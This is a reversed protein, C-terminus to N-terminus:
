LGFGGRLGPCRHSKFATNRRSEHDVGSPQPQFRGKQRLDDVLLALLEIDPLDNRSRVGHFLAHRSIGLVHICRGIIEADGVVGSDHFPHARGAAAPSIHDNALCVSLREALEAAFSIKKLIAPNDDHVLYGFRVSKSFHRIMVDRRKQHSLKVTM